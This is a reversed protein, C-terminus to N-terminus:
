PRVYGHVRDRAFSVTFLTLMYPEYLVAGKSGEEGTKKTPSIWVNGLMTAAAVSCGRIPLVSIFPSMVARAGAERVEHQVDLPLADISEISQTSNRANTNISDNLNMNSFFVAFKNYFVSPMVAIALTGGFPMTFSMRSMVAAIRDRWIGASHLSGPMMRLGSGAGAFALMLSVLTSNRRSTAYAPVSFGAAEVISGIFLPYFTQIPFVNCLFMASYIGIGIGPM